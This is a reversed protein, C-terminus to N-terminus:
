LDVGGDFEMNFGLIRAKEVCVNCLMPLKKDLHPIDPSFAMVCTDNMCHDLGILHGLEHILEKYLRERFLSKGDETGLNVAYALRFISITITKTAMHTASFIYARGDIFLDRDIFIIDVVNPKPPNEERFRRILDKINVQSRRVNFADAVLRDPFRNVNMEFKDWFFLKLSAEVVDMNDALFSEADETIWVNFTYKSNM